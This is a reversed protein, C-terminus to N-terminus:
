LLFDKQKITITLILVSIILLFVITPEAFFLMQSRGMTATQPFLYGYLVYNTPQIFWSVLAIVTPIGIIILRSKRVFLSVAYSLLALLGSWLSINLMFLVNQLIPNNYFLEPFIPSDFGVSSKYSPWNFGLFMTGDAPFVIFALLQSLLLPILIIFFAGLFVVIISSLLYIFPSVRTIVSVFINDRVDAYFNDAFVSAGVIFVLFFVFVRFSQIRMTDANGVWGYGAAPVASIDEGQFQLCCEVFSVTVVLLMVTMAIKFEKRNVLHKAQLVLLSKLGASNAKRSM